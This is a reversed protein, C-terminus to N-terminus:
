SSKSNPNYAGPLSDLQQTLYDGTATLQGVLADLANFQRTYRDELAALRRDLVERRDGIADIRTQIGDTRTQLIGGASLYSDLIDDLRSTYGQESTFLAGVAASDAALAEDLKGGDLVLTGDTKTTIGIDALASFDGDLGSLSRGLETRLRDGISRTMADGFLAPQSVGQGKYGSVSGLTSVLANYSQVFGAIASAIGGRDVGVTLTTPQGPDAKGLSLSVGDIADAVENTSRTVTIGDITVAADLESLDGVLNGDADRNATALSLSGGAAFTETVEIRKAYGTETATLVLAQHGDDVNVLTARVGPNDAASNIADRLAALTKGEALDISFAQGDVTLALSDGESGGFTQDNAFTASALKHPQALREVQVQYQGAAADADATATFLDENGSTAELGAFDSAQDINGLSSQVASLASKLKGLASFQATLKTEQKTLQAKAPDGEAAVLKSVLGSIDLGSGLGSAVLAAM